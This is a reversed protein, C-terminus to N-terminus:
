TEATKKSRIVAHPVDAADVGVGVALVEVFIMSDLLLAQAFRAAPALYRATQL